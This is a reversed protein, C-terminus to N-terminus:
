AAIDVGREMAPYKGRISTLVPWAFWLYVALLGVVSLGAFICTAYLLGLLFGRMRNLSISFLAPALVALEYHMSYPALMLAGGLMIVSRDALPIAMSFARWTAAIAIAAMILPIIPSAFGHYVAFAYPSVSNRLLADEHVFLHQFAPVADFWALWLEAGFLLLGLVILAVGTAAATATARYHRGSLLAIPALVLLTPKILTAVALLAGAKSPERELRALGAIALAVVLLSLQGAIAALIVPPALLLLLRDTKLPTSCMALAVASGAILVAFSPWFAIKAMPVLLLLTSPPYIFPHIAYGGALPGQLASITKIDYLLSPDSMALQGAAWLPAWDAAPRFFILLAGDLVIFLFILALRGANAKAFERLSM